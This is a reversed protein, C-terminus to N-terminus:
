ASGHLVEVLEMVRSVPWGIYALVDGYTAQPHHRLFRRAAAKRSGLPLM